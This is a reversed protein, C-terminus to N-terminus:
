DEWPLMITLVPEGHDGPGCVARLRVTDHHRPENAVFVDFLLETAGPDASKIQYRIMWLIDWVRGTMSQGAPADGPPVVVGQWVAATVAVHVTYGMEGALESVDVLTGDDLAQERTYALILEGTM